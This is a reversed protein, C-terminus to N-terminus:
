VVEFYKERVIEPSCNYHQGLLMYVTKSDVYTHEQIAMGGIDDSSEVSRMEQLKADFSDLVKGIGESRPMNYPLTEKEETWWSNLVEVTDKKKDEDGWLGWFNPDKTNLGIREIQFEEM